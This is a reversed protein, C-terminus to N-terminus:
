DIIERIQNEIREIEEIFGKASLRTAGNGWIICQEHGDSTSDLNVANSFPEEM